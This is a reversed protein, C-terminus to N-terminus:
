SAGITGTWNGGGVGSRCSESLISAGLEIAAAWLSAQLLEAAPLSSCFVRQHGGAPMDNMISEFCSM